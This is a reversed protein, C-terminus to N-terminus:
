TSRERFIFRQQVNYSVVFLSLDAIMKAFIKSVGISTLGLIIFYNVTLVAAVFLYFYVLSRKGVHSKFVVERNVIYNITSSIIRPVVVSVLLSTQFLYGLLVFVGYEILGSFMSSGIYKGIQKFLLAYIRYSDRLTDFHSSKNNDIYITAIPVEIVSMTKQRATILVNMEFEYHDGDLQAFTELSCLPMGRLGTQTDHVWLGTLLGLAACTITNGARSRPPMLSKDRTGLVLSEPSDLMVEAIHHVDAPSHQGDCDATIVPMPDEALLAQLGSRLAAGKGRNVEHVLVQCGDEKAQEFFSAYEPGGGDDVVILREFGDDRLARIFVNMREDPKYAPIIVAVASMPM